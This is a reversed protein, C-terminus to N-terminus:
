AIALMRAGLLVSKILGHATLGGVAMMSYMYM